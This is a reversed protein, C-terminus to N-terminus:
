GSAPPITIRVFRVHCACSSTAMGPGEDMYHMRLRGCDGDDVELYNPILSFDARNEFREDPIKLIKM